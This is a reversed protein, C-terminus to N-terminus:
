ELKEIGVRVVECMRELESESIVLPPVLVVVNGLPRLWVGESIAADCVQNGRKQEWPYPTKTQKDQVLEIGAILGAQRVDGVQPLTALQSLHDELQAIKPVLKELTKDEEFLELTALAVAAALPNGAYTHGHFFTRFDRHAGLFASYIEDTAMTVAMPLYGGTLGKALCLLDPTVEEDECAFMTGTRGLGVAVEDAILLINYKRTLERVGRLYGAPHTLMGAAGQVLPELIFAAIEQHHEKFIVELQDLYYALATEATVGTPLRYMDPAPARFVDFLLPGFIEHFRAVGGVSVSGLTDGHYADSLAVFKTKQPRPTPCQQWYQFAIKLAVEVATSGADSYFVHTLGAPALEVLRRSLKITTDNSSGLSTVHAVRDLQDRLAQDLRPHRHGFVNCWLSSVGDLYRNGDIDTLYCGEGETFILPEYEQMQTFGHWYHAQDWHKLQEVEQASLAASPSLAGMSSANM